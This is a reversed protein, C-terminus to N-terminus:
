SQRILTSLSPGRELFGCASGRRHAGLLTRVAGQLQPQSGALQELWAGREADPIELAEDLLRSIQPWQAASFPLMEFEKLAPDSM